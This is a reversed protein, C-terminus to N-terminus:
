KCMRVCTELLLWQVNYWIQSKRKKKIM